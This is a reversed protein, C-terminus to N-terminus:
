AEGEARAAALAEARKISSHRHEHLNGLVEADMTVLRAWCSLCFEARGPVRSGDPQLRLVHRVFPPVDPGPELHDVDRGPVAGVTIRVIIGSDTMHIPTQVVQGFSDLVTCFDCDAAGGTAQGM